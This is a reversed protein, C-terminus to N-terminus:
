HEFAPRAIRLPTTAKVRYGRLARFYSTSRYSRFHESTRCKPEGRWLKSWEADRSSLVRAPEPALAESSRLVLPWLAARQTERLVCLSSAAHLASALVPLSRLEAALSLWLKFREECAGTIANTCDAM